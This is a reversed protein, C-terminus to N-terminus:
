LQSKVLQHRAAGAENTVFVDRLSFATRLPKARKRLAEQLPPLWESKHGRVVLICTIKGSLNSKNRMDKPIDEPGERFRKFITGIYLLLSHWFKEYVEQLYQELPETRKPASSKAEIFLLISGTKRKQLTIFDCARVDQMTAFFPQKELLLIREDDFMFRMESEVYVRNGM